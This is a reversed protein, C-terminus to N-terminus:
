ATERTGSSRGSAPRKVHPRCDIPIDIIFTTGTAASSDVVVSGGHGEAVSRVFPLGIGWGDARNGSDERRLYEFIRERREEPIPNGTNHVSLSLRGRESQAAILVRQGDGYKFANTVLNELARLLSNKCWHGVVPAVRTEIKGVVLLDFEQVVTSVVSQVDFESLSLPLTVGRDFTLADVLQILMHELRAAGHQIKEATRCAAPLDPVLAILQAGATILSLPNRMDHSLTAALRERISEQILAYERVAERMGVDVSRVVIQWEDATFQLGNRQAVTGIADRFLQYEHIIQDARFPTMRAREGGHASMSTTHSAGHSRPYSPTLAEAINDYFAPLTNVLLPGSVGQAEQVHERLKAEWLDIVQERLALMARSTASLGAATEKQDTALTM